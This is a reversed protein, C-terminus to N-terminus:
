ASRRRARLKRAAVVLGSGLLALTGPEAVTQAEFNSITTTASGEISDFANARFGFVEGPVVDFNVRGSQDTAGVNDTVQTFVGNLLWGFPDFLPGDADFTLFNWDFSITAPEFALFVFDQNQNGGGDDASTLSVLLPAGATSISGGDIISTWNSVDYPGTFDITTASAPQVTYLVLGVVGLIGVLTRM